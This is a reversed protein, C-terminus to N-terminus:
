TQQKEKEEKKEPMSYHSINDNFIKNIYEACGNIKETLGVEVKYVKGKSENSETKELITYVCQAILSQFIKQIQKKAEKQSIENDNLKKGISRIREEVLIKAVEQACINADDCNDFYHTAGCMILMTENFSTDGLNKIIKWEILKNQLARSSYYDLSFTEFFTKYISSSLIQCNKDDGPNKMCEYLSSKIFRALNKNKYKYEIELKPKDDNFFWWWITKTQTTPLLILISLILKVKYNM